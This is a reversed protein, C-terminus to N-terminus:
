PTISTVMKTNGEILIQLGKKFEHMGNIIYKSNSQKPAFDSLPIKITYFILLENEWFM